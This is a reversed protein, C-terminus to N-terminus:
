PQSTSSIGYTKGPEVGMYFVLEGGTMINKHSIYTFPYPRGNYEIKQIYKNQGSNNKTKISFTKGNELHLKASDFLPSGFVYKGEMPNVSYMGLASFAYWASMQGVDENGCLGNAKTTYFKQVVDRVLEATKWPEGLYNYLYTIHHSPENGHAYQGILGSVDPATGKGLESSMTFLSDLRSKFIKQGGLQQILGRVDHPALFLYQWANGETYDSTVPVSYLPDFPRRFKGGAFRGNFFGASKDYYLKYLQSRKLFYDGDVKKGLAFAAKAIGADAIAYEMAWAVSEHMKDAPIYNLKNLYQLGMSDRMATRKMAEYIQEQKQTPILGKVFADALIIIAPNGVMCDTESGVLPWVPLRGQQQDIALMTSAIDNILSPKVISMFPAWGRYIDWLSMTTYNKFDAGKYVKKDTGRYDNNSDNFLTPGLFMHYLATYFVEKDTKNKTEVEIAGLTKEWIQDAKLRFGEFNGVPAEINMNALANEESVPSIAVKLVMDPNRTADFYLVAKAHGSEVKRSNQLTSDSYFAAKTIPQSTRISFYLRQDKSWGTSFRYGTFTSDNVQKIFTKVPKDWNMAFGLDVLIHANDTKDYHYKHIGVRETATLKAEVKYKDLYVQYYGPRCIETKKSFLSGYGTAPKEFKMPYLQVPGNAPVIMIDNLDGIGTGSLHTHTFGLIEQSLYNYGSCWDWGNFQDWGRGIQTPGLQVAGFPVNAGVFVHGHEESGIFPNVYSTLSKNQAKITASATFILLSAVIVQKIVHKM